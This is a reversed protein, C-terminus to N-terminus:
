PTLVQALRTCESLLRQTWQGKHIAVFALSERGLATSLEATTFLSSIQADGRVSEIKRVTEHPANRATFVLGVKRAVLSQRVNDYGYDVAWARRALGLTALCARRALVIVQDILAPPVVVSRRAAKSFANTHVARQLENLRATVWYGRGPLSAALDPTIVNDPGIVFRIMQDHPLEAGTVICRRIRSGRGGVEEPEEGTGQPATMVVAEEGSKPLQLGSSVPEESQVPKSRTAPRRKAEVMRAVEQGIAVDASNGDQALPIPASSIVPLKTGGGKPDKSFDSNAASM